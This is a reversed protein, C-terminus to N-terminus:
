KTRSEPSTKTSSAPDVVANRRARYRASHTIREREVKEEVTVDEETPNEAGKRKEKSKDASDSMKTDKKPRGDTGLAM